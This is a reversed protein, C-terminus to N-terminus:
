VALTDKPGELCPEEACLAATLAQWPFALGPEQHPQGRQLVRLAAGPGAPGSSLALAHLLLRCPRPCLQLWPPCRPEM